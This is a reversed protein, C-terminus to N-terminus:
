GRSRRLARRLAWLLRYAPRLWPSLFERARLRRRLDAPARAPVLRGRSKLRHTADRISFFHEAGGMLIRNADAEPGEWREGTAHPVHRYEHKQHIVLTAGTADVVALRRSRAHYIMWNDWWPRGVAFAPVPGLVGRPYVFYDIAFTPRLTGARQALAGLESQPSGPGTPPEVVELDWAQGVMLFRRKAESVRQAAQVLDSFLIIDANVYCLLEHAARKEVADFVSSLLPTGLENKTIEAVQEVGLEAAVRGTGAEDGFLIVQCRPTLDMWSRIANRQIFGIHGEFPKPVTFITLM